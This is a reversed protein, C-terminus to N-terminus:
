PFDPRPHPGAGLIHDLAKLFFLFSKTFHHLDFLFAVFDYCDVLLLYSPCCPLLNNVSSDCPGAQSSYLLCPQFEHDRGTIVAKLDWSCKKQTYSLVSVLGAWIAGCICSPLFRASVYMCAPLKCWWGTELLPDLENLSPSFTQAVSLFLPEEKGWSTLPVNSSVKLPLLLDGLIHCSDGEAWVNNEHLCNNYDVTGLSSLM